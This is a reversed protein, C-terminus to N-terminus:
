LFLPPVIRIHRTVAVLSQSADLRARNNVYVNLRKRGCGKRIAGRRGDLFWNMEQLIRRVDYAGMGGCVGLACGRSLSHCQREWLSGGCSHLLPLRSTIIVGGRMEWFLRIRNTLRGGRGQRWRRPAQTSATGTDLGDMRQTYEDKISGNTQDITMGEYRGDAELHGAGSSCGRLDLGSERVCAFAECASWLACQCQCGSRTQTIRPGQAM